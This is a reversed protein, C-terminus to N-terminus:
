FYIAHVLNLSVIVCPTFNRARPFQFQTIRWRGLHCRHGLCTFNPTASMSCACSTRLSDWFCDIQFFASKNVLKELKSFGGKEVIKEALIKEWLNM